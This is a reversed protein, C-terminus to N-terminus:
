TGVRTLRVVRTLPAATWLVPMTRAMTARCMFPLHVGDICLSAGGSMGIKRDRCRASRSVQSSRCGSLQGPAEVYRQRAQVTLRLAEDVGVEEM